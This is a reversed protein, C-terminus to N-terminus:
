EKALRKIEELLEERLKQYEDFSAKKDVVNNLMDRWRQQVNLRALDEAIFIRSKSIRSLSDQSLMQEYSVATRSPSQEYIADLLERCEEKRNERIWQERQWRKALEQGYRVGVLPGVAGWIALIITSWVFIDINM